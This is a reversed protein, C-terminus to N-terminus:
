IIIIDRDYKHEEFDRVRLDLYRYPMILGVPAGDEYVYVESYKEKLNTKFTPKTFNRLYKGQIWKNGIKCIKKGFDIVFGELYVEDLHESENLYTDDAIKILEEENLKFMKTLFFDKLIFYAVEGNPTCFIYDRFKAYFFDPEDNKAANVMDMQIHQLKM